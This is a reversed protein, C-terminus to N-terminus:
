SEVAANQGAQCVKAREECQPGCLAVILKDEVAM